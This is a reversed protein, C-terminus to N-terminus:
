TIIVRIIITSFDICVLLNYREQAKHIQHSTFFELLRELKLFYKLTCQFKALKWPKLITNPLVCRMCLAHLEMHFQMSKRKM